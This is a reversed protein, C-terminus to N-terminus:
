LLKKIDDIAQQAGSPNSGGAQAFDPRGGGGQGGIAPVAKAILDVANYQATLDTDVSILLGVKDENISVLAIVAGKYKVKLQDAIGRLNKTPVNDLIKGIFPTAGIMQVEDTNDAGKGGVAIQTQLQSIKQELAKKDQLISELRQPLKDVPITLIDASQQLLDSRSDLWAFAGQGTVAEIRKIGGAVTSISTIKFLGIDGTRQVHTGGCLEISYNGQNDGFGMSVVRVEDGYKEGFLAMAGADRAADPSMIKTNVASNQRIHANISSEIEAIDEKTIADNHSFDFRLRDKDVLSGKQTVHTGLKARLAAHLLHTASHNARIALREPTDIEMILTQGVTIEGKQVDGIHVHLAGLQKQTSNIRVSVPHSAGTSETLYGTDGIQGGSEAYFPTQNTLIQVLEGAKASQVNQGDKIIALIKGQGKDANYGLFESAGFQDKLDFWIKQSGADGSGVWSKRALAKQAEMAAQFGAVDVARKQSKLVDQTLDLPFGYTDFLKFAVDGALAENSGLKSTEDELLKLGRDLTNRFRTEESELTQKIFSEQEKLEPYHDGMQTVLAPVLKHMMPDHVGMMHVHRMARRMIRRLVYGRGENSPMIGGSIMFSAARLHDAIVRHSTKFAGDPDINSADASAMIIARMLDIDFNDNKGQMVTSLRELGTGTDISPKPLPLLTDPGTQEYQMFVLNWIEMFRDGDEDASGPPGGFVTDGHDYFIESCPGCPGTDGMRWFNDDTAIRIIKDDPLGAIKKWLNAAEHDDAYVTVLLKEKPLAFDQTLLRWAMDIADEKFYDGFSFNGLMEFFTHHRATFGVNELDNHKGGARLCKQSSAARTYPRTELGTFVNKFPVMGAVSFMVSPDNDPVIPASPQVSHGHREFFDLFTSRVQSVSKFSM